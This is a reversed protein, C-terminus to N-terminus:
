PRNSPGIPRTKYTPRFDAHCQVCANYLQENLELVADVDKKRTAAFAAAGAEVLVKADSMWKEPNTTPRISTPIACCTDMRGPMMLLNGAEALLLAKGQLDKWQEDTPPPDPNIYFLPDATPYLIYVMLDDITGVASTAATATQAAPAPGQASLAQAGLAAAAGPVGLPSQVLMVTTLLVFIPIRM